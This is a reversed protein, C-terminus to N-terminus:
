PRVASYGQALSALRCALVARVADDDLWEGMGCGHYRTLQAPLAEILSMPVDVVCADGYGTTVGYVPRGAALHAHLADVGRRIRDQWAPDTSLRARRTRHALSLIDEITLRGHGFVVASASSQSAA